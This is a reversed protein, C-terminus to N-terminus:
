DVEKGEIVLAKCEEYEVDLKNGDDDYCACRNTDESFACRLTTEQVKNQSWWYAGFGLGLLLVFVAILASKSNM